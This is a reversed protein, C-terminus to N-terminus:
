QGGATLQQAIKQAAQQLDALWGMAKKEEFQSVPGSLNLAGHLRGDDGLVPVAISGVDPNREGQSTCWGAQRIQKYKDELQSMPKTESTNEPAHHYAVLVHGSAGKELTLATGEMLHHTMEQQVSERFLCIRQQGSKVYFIATQRTTESLKALVARILKEHNYTQRCVNGLRWLSFSLSYRGDDQHNLFGNAELSGIIRLITSKYLGTAVAIDNLSQSPKEESFTNLIALAREVAAVRNETM